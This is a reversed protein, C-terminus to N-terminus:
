RWSSFPETVAKPPKWKIEHLPNATFVKQEVALELLHHFIARKRRVTNAAAEKGDFTSSVADLAGRVVHAEQLDVLPLSAKELWRLVTAQRRNLEGRRNEPLLVHNRLVHRLEDVEPRDPVDAVLAPVLSLLAYAETERTRPATRRWRGVAYSQAFELFSPGSPELEASLMSVPLGTALDFAEGKKAAQRLDSLFNEALAKTRFTKSKPKSGVKWRAEFSPTKSSRNRRVEWFRVDYSTIM